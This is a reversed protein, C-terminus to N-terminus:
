QYLENLEEDTINCDVFEVEKIFTISLERGCVSLETADYFVHAEIDDNTDIKTHKNPMISLNGNRAQATFLWKLVELIHTKAGELAMIQESVSEPRVQRYIRIVFNIKNWFTSNEKAFSDIPYSVEMCFSKLDLKGGAMKKIEDDSSMIYRKLKANTKSHGLVKVAINEFIINFEEVTM